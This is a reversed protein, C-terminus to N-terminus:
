DIFFSVINICLFSCCFQVEGVDCRQVHFVRQLAAAATQLLAHLGVYEKEVYRTDLTVNVPRWTADVAEVGRKQRSQHPQPNPHPRPHPDPLLDHVCTYAFSTYVFLFCFLFVFQIMKNQIQTHNHPKPARSEIKKEFVKEQAEQRKKLILKKKGM